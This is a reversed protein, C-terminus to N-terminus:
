AFDVPSTILAQLAEIGPDFAFYLIFLHRLQEVMRKQEVGYLWGSLWLAGFLRNISPPVDLWGFPVTPVFVVKKNKVAPIDQWLPNQYVDRYFAVDQTLIVDPNWVLVQEMSVRVLQEGEMTGAVNEAGVLRIVESHISQGAGTELGDASRALYMSPMDGKYASKKAAIDDLIEQAANALQQGHRQHGLVTGLVRLQEPTDEIRGEVLIYPIGTQESFQQVLSLYHANVDGVDVIVDPKLALLQETSITSGRGALRGVVPLQRSHESLWPLANEPLAFPWGLLQKPTLSNLMVGAPAGAAFVRKIEVPEPLTGFVHFLPSTVNPVTQSFVVPPLVGGTLLMTSGLAKLLARRNM